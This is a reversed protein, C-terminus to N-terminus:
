GGGDEGRIKNTKKRTLCSGGDQHLARSAGTTERRTPGLFEERALKLDDGFKTLREERLRPAEVLSAALGEACSKREPPTNCQTPTGKKNKPPEPLSHIRKPEELTTESPFPSSLSGRTWIM